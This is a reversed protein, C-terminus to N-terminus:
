IGRGKAILSKTTEEIKSQVDATVPIPEYVFSSGTSETDSEGESTVLEGPRGAPILTSSSSFQPVWHARYWDIRSPLEERAWQHPIHIYDLSNSPMPIREFTLKCSGSDCEVWKVRPNNPDDTIQTMPTFFRSALWSRGRGLEEDVHIQLASTPVRSSGSAPSETMVPTVVPMPIGLLVTRVTRFHGQGDSEATHDTVQGTAPLSSENPPLPTTGDDNLETVGHPAQRNRASNSPTTNEYPQLQYLLRTNADLCTRKNQPGFHALLQDHTIIEGAKPEGLYCKGSSPASVRHTSSMTPPSDSNVDRRASRPVTSHM